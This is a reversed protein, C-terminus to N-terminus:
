GSVKIILSASFVLATKQLLAAACKLMLFRWRWRWRWGPTYPQVKAQKDALNSFDKEFPETSPVVHALSSMRSCHSECWANRSKAEFCYTSQVVYETATHVKRQM